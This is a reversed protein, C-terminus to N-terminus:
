KVSAIRFGLRGLALRLSHANESVVVRVGASGRSVQERAVRGILAAYADAASGQDTAAVDYIVGDHAYCWALLRGDRVLTHLSHNAARSRAYARACASIAAGVAASAGNWLLLDESRNEHIEGEAGAARADPEFTLASAVYSLEGRPQGVAATLARALSARLGLERLRRWKYQAFSIAPKVRSEWAGTGLAGETARRVQHVSATHAQRLYYEHPRAYVDVMTLEVCRNGLRRKFESEGVTLDFAALGLERANQIIWAMLIVAPSRHEDEISISPAGLLLVDRWLMGVHGSIMRGNVRCATVHLRVDGAAFVADYLARKRSDDFSVERAAQLQRLSHQQFFEGRFAAWAAQDTILDFRVDGQRKFHNLHTRVRSFKKNLNEGPEPRWRWCPQHSQACKLGLRRCVEAVLAPTDSAPDIWGIQLPGPFRGRVYQEILAAVVSRRYGPRAVIDRYDATTDSAFVLRGDDRKVAMPVVGVVTAGDRVVIVFPSFADAYCHYWPVCWGPTQYVSALPDADIANIWDRRLGAALATDLAALDTVCEATVAVDHPVDVAIPAPIAVAQM